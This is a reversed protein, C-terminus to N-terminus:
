SETLVLADMRALSKAFQYGGIYLKFLADVQGNTYFAPSDKAERKVIGTYIPLKPLDREFQQRMKRTAPSTFGDQIKATFRVLSISLKHIFQIACNLTAAAVKRFCKTCLAM